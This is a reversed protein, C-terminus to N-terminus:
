RRGMMQLLLCFHVGTYDDEGGQCDSDLEELYCLCLLWFNEPKMDHFAIKANWPFIDSLYPDIKAEACRGWHVLM